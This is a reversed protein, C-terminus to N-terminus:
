FMFYYLLKSKEDSSRVTEVCDAGSDQEPWSEFDGDPDDQEEDDSIDDDDEEDEDEGQATQLLRCMKTVERVIPMKRYYKFHVGDGHGLFDAVDSVASRTMELSICLSAVHKRMKTGRLLQPEKAGCLVSLKRLVNCANVRRTRTGTITPLAFLFKNDDTIKVNKRHRLLLQICKDVNPGILCPVTRDKKGRIKMRSFKKALKKDELSLTAVWKEDLYERRNFNEILINQTEGTRRRNFVILSAITMRALNLYAAYSYQKSLDLFFVKLQKSIYKALLQIDETSPLKEDKDRKMKAQTRYIGKSVSKPVDSDFLKNFNETRTQSEVDEKKIHEAVLMVGVTRVLTIAAKSTSPAGYHQTAPDFKGVTRIAKIVSDYVRPRYMSAFDTVSPEISKLISLLRGALRLKSSIGEHQFDEACTVCLSNGYAIVLWDFRILRVIDDETMHSFVKNILTDCADEHVRGEVMRGLVLVSREGKLDIDIADCNKFHTRIYTNSYPGLCKACTTSGSVKRPRKINPRRSPLFRGKNYKINGNHEFMGRKRLKALGALRQKSGVSIFFDSDNILFSYLKPHTHLFM